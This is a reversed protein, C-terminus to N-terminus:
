EPDLNAVASALLSTPVILTSKQLFGNLEDALAAQLQAANADTNTLSERTPLSFNTWLYSSVGATANAFTYVLNTINLFHFNTSLVTQPLPVWGFTHTNFDMSWYSLPVDGALAPSGLTGPAESALARITIIHSLPSTNRIRLPQEVLGSGYDLGTSQEMAFA